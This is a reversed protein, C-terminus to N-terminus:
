KIRGSEIAAHMAARLGVPDTTGKGQVMLALLLAHYRTPWELLLAGQQPTGM